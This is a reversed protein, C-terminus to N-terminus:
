ASRRGQRLAKVANPEAIGRTTSGRQKKKKKKEGELMPPYSEERRARSVVPPLTHDLARWGSEGGAHKATRPHGSKEQLRLCRPSQVQLVTPLPSCACQM